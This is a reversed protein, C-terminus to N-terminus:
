ALVTVAGPHTICTLPLEAIREGDAYAVIKRGRVPEVDLRVRRARHVVVRPDRVHSGSYVRPFIRLFTPVPVERVLVVETLGDDMSADPCVRMGGGYSPGNGLAVLMAKEVAAAEDDLTVTYTRASFRPLEALMALVYKARGRPRNWGNARENVVADFGAALVGAFWRPAGDGATEEPRVEVADIRRGGTALKELLVTAAAQPDRVPLGLTRAIDNGTGAAVIGLPVDTGVVAAVGLHVMGDGGVVVLADVDEHDLSAAIRAALDAASTGELRQVSAGLTSLAAVAADGLAAGRGQGSTPNVAVAIRSANM